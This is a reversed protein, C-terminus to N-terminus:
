SVLGPWFNLIPLFTKAESQLHCLICDSIHVDFWHGILRVLCVHVSPCAGDLWNLYAFITLSPFLQICHVVWVLFAAEM